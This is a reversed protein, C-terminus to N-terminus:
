RGYDYGRNRSIYEFNYQPLVQSYYRDLVGTYIQRRSTSSLGKGASSAASRMQRELSSQDKRIRNYLDRSNKATTKSTRRIIYNHEGSGSAVARHEAWNSAAMNLVDQTSFTGGYGEGSSPHGHTVTAGQRMLESRPFAVSNGNGRFASLVTGDAAVVFMEEHSLTRIRDEIQQLSMGQFRSVDMPHAKRQGSNGPSTNHTQKRRTASWSGRGGM